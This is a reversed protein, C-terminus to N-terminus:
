KVRNVKRLIADRETQTMQVRGITAQDKTAPQLPVDRLYGRRLCDRILESATCDRINAEWQAAQWEEDSLYVIRRKYTAM